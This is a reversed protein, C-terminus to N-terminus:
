SISGLVLRGRLLRALLQSSLWTWFLSALALGKAARMRVNRVPLRSVLTLRKVSEREEETLRINAGRWDENDDHLDRVRHMVMSSNFQVGERFENNLEAVTTNPMLYVNEVFRDYGRAGPDVKAILENYPAYLANTDRLLDAANFTGNEIAARYVEGDPGQEQGAIFRVIFDNETDDLESYGIFQGNDAFQAEGSGVLVKTGIYPLSAQRQEEVFATSERAIEVGLESDFPIGATAAEYAVVPDMTPYAMGWFEFDQALRVLAADDYHAIRANAADVRQQAEEIMRIELDSDRFTM